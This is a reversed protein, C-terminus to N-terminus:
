ALPIALRYYWLQVCCFAIILVVIPLIALMSLIYEKCTHRRVDPRPQNIVAVAFFVILRQPM